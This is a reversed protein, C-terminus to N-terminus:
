RFWYALMVVGFDYLLLAHMEEASDTVSVVPVDGHMDQGALGEPTDLMGRFVPSSYAMVVKHICFVTTSGDPSPASFIALDGDALYFKADHAIAQTNMTYLLVMRTCSRAFIPAHISQRELAFM